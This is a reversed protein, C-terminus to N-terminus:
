SGLLQHALSVANAIRKYTMATVPDVFQPRATTLSASVTRTVRRFTANRRCGPNWRPDLGTSTGFSSDGLEYITVMFRAKLHPLVALNELYTGIPLFWDLVFSFPFVEWAVQLPDTLGLSRAFSVEEELECIIKGRIRQICPASWLSPACSSDSVRYKGTKAVVRNTRNISLAEFAKAAEFADSISPLWGYQMELWRGTVDKSKLSKNKGSVGLERFAAAVNGRKLYLLSRGMSRITNACMTVLQNAQAINVALNFEHGKIASVLKSQLRLDDAPTWVYSPFCNVGSNPVSSPGLQDSMSAFQMSYPNWKERLWGDVVETKGDTGSWVKSMSYSKPTVPVTVSGTTM